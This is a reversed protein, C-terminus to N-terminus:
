TGPLGFPFGWQAGLAQRISQAMDNVFSGTPAMPGLFILALVLVLALATLRVVLRM